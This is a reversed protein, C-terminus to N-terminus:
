ERPYGEVHRTGARIVRGVAIGTPLSLILWALLAATIM